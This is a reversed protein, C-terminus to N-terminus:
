METLFVTTLLLNSCVNGITYGFLAGAAVLALTKLQSNTINESM